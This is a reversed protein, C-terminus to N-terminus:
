MLINQNEQDVQVDIFKNIFKMEKLCFINTNRESDRNNCFQSFNIIIIILFFFIKFIGKGNFKHPSINV